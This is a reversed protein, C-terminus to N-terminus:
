GDNAERLPEEPVYGSGRRWMKTAFVVGIVFLLALPIVPPTPAFFRPMTNACAHFLVCLFISGGSGNYLAVFLVSLMLSAPLRSLMLLLPHGDGYLGSMWIPLHWFEWVVGILLAAVLPSRYRQLLPLMVARWGHEENGGTLVAVMVLKTLMQPLWLSLPLERYPEPELELGLIGSAFRAVVFLLPFFLLVPVLCMLARRDPVLGRFYSRVLLLRSQRQAFIWGSILVPLLFATYAVAPTDDPLLLLWEGPGETVRFVDFVIALTAIVALSAGVLFGAMSRPQRHVRRTALSRLTVVGGIAPGFLGLIFLSLRIPPQDDFLWFAAFFCAWSWAFTILVLALIPRDRHYHQLNRMM